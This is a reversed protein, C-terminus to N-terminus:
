VICHIAALSKQMVDHVSKYPFFSIRRHDLDKMGKRKFTFRECRGVGVPFAFPLVATATISM